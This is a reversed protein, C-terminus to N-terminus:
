IFHKKEYYHMKNYMLCGIVVICGILCGLMWTMQSGRQAVTEEMHKTQITIMGVAEDNNTQQHKKKVELISSRALDLKKHHGDSYKALMERFGKIGSKLEGVGAQGALNVLVEIERALTRCGEELSTLRGNLQSLSDFLGREVPAITGIHDSLMTTLRSLHETQSKQDVFHRNEDTLMERYAEQITAAVDKLEEGVSNEDLNLTEVRDVVVIDPSEADAHSGSWATLGVFGSDPVVAGTKDATRSIRFLENWSLSPSQKFNVTVEETSVRVRLQAANLTNRFDVPKSATGPVDVGMAFEKTNNNTVFSAM